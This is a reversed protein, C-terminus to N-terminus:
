SEGLISLMGRIPIMVWDPRNNLEYILEYIGKDILFAQLLIDTEERTRPLFGCDGATERYASLFVSSVSQYWLDAYLHLTDLDAPHVTTYQMLASYVAYHYSRILGAIDRLASYKLRREGPSRMPEGEFDIIIFDKGTFLLQGLHYDGHIRIKKGSIRGELVRKSIDLIRRRGDLVAQADDRTQEPFRKKNKELVDLGRLIRNRLSQYLSRQYLRSFPEPDFDPNPSEAALTCHMQGTRRGLVVTQELYVSGVLQQLDDPIRSHDLAFLYEMGSRPKRPRESLTLVREFYQQLIGLTLTWADNQSAVFQQLMALVLPQEGKRLYELSGAFSPVATFGNSESLYRVMEPDPNLGEEFKRYLKLFFVNGYLLSSNSQEAKLVRSSLSGEESKKLSKLLKGPRGVIQGTTGVAKSRGRLLNLIMGHLAESYLGDYVVGYSDDVYLRSVIGEPHKDMIELAQKGGAFALFLQYWEQPGSPYSPELLVAVPADAERSFPVVDVITVGM